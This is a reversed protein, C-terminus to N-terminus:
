RATENLELRVYDYLVGHPWDTAPLLHLQIQNEGSQLLAADFSVAREYWYGQIEDRHMVGTSPLPGTEGVTKGNVSVAVNCKVRSGCFALRLVATGRVTKPREFRITWTTPRLDAKDVVGTDSAKLIRPPQAYNWDTRPDSKGIVFNVDAPFEAPYKLYLGWQHPADGHRFERATRDPVGIEWLPRGYHFPTWVIDGLNLTAGAKVAINARAFEGLVGDGFAHM